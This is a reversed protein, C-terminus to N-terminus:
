RAGEKAPADRRDRAVYELLVSGSPFQRSATLRLDLPEDLAGFLAKGKGLAMPAILFRYDDILRADSMTAFLEAGAGLMIAPGETSKLHRLFDVPDGDIKSANARLRPSGRSAVHKPTERWFIAFEREVERANPDDIDFDDWYDMVDYMGRGMVLDGADRVLHNAYRHEEDAPDFGGLGGDPDAYMGDTTLTIYYIVRRV